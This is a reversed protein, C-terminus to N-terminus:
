YIFQIISSYFLCCYAQFFFQLGVFVVFHLEKSQIFFHVMSSYSLCCCAWFIVFYVLWLLICDYVQVLLHGFFSPVIFEYFSFVVGLLFFLWLLICDYVFTPFCLLVLPHIFYFLLGGFSLLMCFCFPIFNCFVAIFCLCCFSSPAIFSYFLCCWVWFFFSCCFAIMCLTPFVFFYWHIFLFSLLVGLHFLLSCALIFPFLIVFFWLSGCIVFLLLFLSSMFSLAGHRFHFFRCHLM